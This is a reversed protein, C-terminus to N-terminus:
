GHATHYPPPIFSDRLIFLLFQYQHRVIMIKKSCYVIHKTHPVLRDTVRQSPGSSVQFVERSVLGLHLLFQIINYPITSKWIETIACTKGDETSHYYLHLTQSIHNATYGVPSTTQYVRFSSM